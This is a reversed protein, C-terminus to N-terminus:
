VRIILKGNNQGDFLMKYASPFSEIGHVIHERFSLKGKFHLTSLASYAEPIRDLYDRMTFGQMRASQSILNLYARPGKPNDMNEYQSIAGCVVVIGKYAIRNLCYDLVEGGVNDFYVDIYDPTYLKLKEAVNENKYDIAHDLNLEDKLYRCKESGGAIGIVTAGMVKALQAAISGVAGAAASVVVTQGSKVQAIDMMGFYATQGTFGLGSLNSQAPAVNTDIKSLDRSRLTAFRQVGTFGTVFDGVGLKDCNSKVVKGIGVARMVEGPQVPAIYSRTPTIWGRMAPDVSIWDVSILVEGKSPETVEDESLVFADPPTPGNFYRSLKFSLNKDM